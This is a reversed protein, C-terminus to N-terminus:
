IKLTEILYDRMAERVNALKKETEEKAAYLLKIDDDSDYKIILKLISDLERVLKKEETLIDILSNM